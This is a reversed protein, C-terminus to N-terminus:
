EGTQPQDSIEAEHSKSPAIDLAAILREAAEPAYEGKEVQYVHGRRDVVLAYVTDIGEQGFREVFADQDRYITITRARDEFATIGSRMGSDTWSKLIRWGRAITPLEVWRGDLEGGRLDMGEIWTDVASQQHRKFALLVLSKESPLDGPLTVDRGNLDEAEITPFVDAHATHVGLLSLLIAIPLHRIM